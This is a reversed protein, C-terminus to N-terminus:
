WVSQLADITEDTYLRQIEKKRKKLPGNKAKQKQAAAALEARRKEEAQRHIRPSTRVKQPAEDDSAGMIHQFLTLHASPKPLWDIKLSARFTNSQM